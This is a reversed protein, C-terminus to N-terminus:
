RPGCFRSTARLGNPYERSLRVASDYNGMEVNGDVAIGYVYANYPNSAKAKEALALGDAFHHQSLYLVSKLILAEFNATDVALANNVYTLAAKDYYTYNGTIRAERIYLAALQVLSKTDNPKTQISQLLKYGQEKAKLWEPSTAEVGKRPLLAYTKNTDETAKISTYNYVIVGVAVVFAIVLVTYISNKKM